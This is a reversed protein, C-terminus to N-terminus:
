ADGEQTLEHNGCGIGSTREVLSSTYPAREAAGIETFLVTVAGTVARPDDLSHAHSGSTASCRNADCPSIKRIRLCKSGNNTRVSALREEIMGLAKFDSKPSQSPVPPSLVTKLPELRWIQGKPAVQPYNQYLAAAHTRHPNPRRDRHASRGPYLMVQPEGDTWFRARNSPYQSPKNTPKHLNKM